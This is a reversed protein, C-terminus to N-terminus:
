TLVFIQFALWNGAVFFSLGLLVQFSSYDLNVEEIETDRAGLFIRCHLRILTVANLIYIANVIALCAFGRSVFGEFLVEAGLFTSAVPFGIIGLVGILFISSALPFQGFLGSFNKLCVVLRSKLVYDLINHSILWCTCLGILYFFVPKQYEQGNMLLSLAPLISSFTVWNLVCLARRGEGFASLSFYMTLALLIYPISSNMDFLFVVFGIILLSLLFLGVRKKTVRLYADHSQNCIKALCSLPRVFLWKMMFELYGENLAFIYLAADIKMFSEGFIKKSKPIIRGELASIIQLQQALISPSVLLQFCRLCANGFLHILAVDVLGFSLEVLMLGVQAISAYGIQGKINAQVRGFLTALISSILGVSGVVWAFGPTEYWISFTRILLFVGAHISLSGYFIASSPTPGEMARPLWYSLPFQASKGLVALLIMCSLLWQENVGFHTKTILFSSQDLQHFLNREHWIYHSLFVSMLLGLDCIRYIFYTRKANLIAGPRHWYYGILLFSSFGVFEWGVFLLDFSGALILLSMGFMFLSLVLFFRCYGPDRHLYRQSYFVIVNSIIATILLYLAGAKDLFFSMFLLDQGGQYFCGFDWKMAHFGLCGWCIVVVCACVLYTLFATKAIKQSIDERASRKFIILLGLTFASLLPALFNGLLVFHIAQEVNM